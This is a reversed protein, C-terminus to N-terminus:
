PRNALFQFPLEAYHYKNCNGGGLATWEIM